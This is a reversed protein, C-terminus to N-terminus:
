KYKKKFNIIAQQITSEFKEVNEFHNIITETGHKKLKGSSYFDMGIFPIQLQDTTKADWVGDGIYVIHDWQMGYKLNSLEIAKKTIEVRNYHHDAHALPLNEFPINARELKYRASVEWCGTAFALQYDAHGKLRQLLASAGTIEQFQNPRNQYADELLDMFKSQLARIERPTAQRKHTHKFYSIVLGSDSVHEVDDWDFNNWDVNHLQRYTEAFCLNDIETTNTLTGDIDFILLIM